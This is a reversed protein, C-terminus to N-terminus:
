FVINADPLHTFKLPRCSKVIKYLRTSIKVLVKCDREAKCDEFVMERYIKTYKRFNRRLNEHILTRFSRCIMHDCMVDRTRLM